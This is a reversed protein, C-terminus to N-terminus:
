KYETRYVKVFGVTRGGGSDPYPLLGEGGDNGWAVKKHLTEEM